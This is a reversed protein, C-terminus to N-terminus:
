VASADASVTPAPKGRGSREEDGERRAEDGNRRGRHRTERQKVLRTVADGMRATRIAQANLRPPLIPLDKM